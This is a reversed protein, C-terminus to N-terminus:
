CIILEDKNIVINENVRIAKYVCFETQPILIPFYLRNCVKNRMMINTIYQKDNGSLLTNDTIHTHFMGLFSIGHKSWIDICKNIVFVDPIYSGNDQTKLGSDVEFVTVMDNMGGIIGGYESIKCPLTIIEKYICKKIKM